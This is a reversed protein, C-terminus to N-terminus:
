AHQSSPASTSKHPDHGSAEGDGAATIYRTRPLIMRWGGRYPEGTPIFGCNHYFAEAGGRGRSVALDVFEVIPSSFLVELLRMMIRRGLGRGQHHRDIMFRCLYIHAGNEQEKVFFFGVPRADLYAARCWGAPDLEAQAISYLNDAVLGTQEPGVEIGIVEDLNQLTIKRFEISNMQPTTTIRTSAEWGTADCCLQPTRSPRELTVSYDRFGVKSWFARGAQNNSLVEVIVKSEHRLVESLLLGIAARGVGRRRHERQVFFQRLYISTDKGARYLAYALPVSSDEFIVAQYEGTALWDRMRELLESITMANRHGEDRILRQNMGALLECDALSAIRAKM